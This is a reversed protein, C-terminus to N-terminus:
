ERPLGLARSPLDFWAPVDDSRIVTGDMGIQFAECRLRHAGRSDLQAGTVNPHEKLRMSHKIQNATGCSGNLLGLCRLARRRSLLVACIATRKKLFEGVRGKMKM